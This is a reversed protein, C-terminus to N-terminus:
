VHLKSAIDACCVARRFSNLIWFVLPLGHLFCGLHEDPCHTLMQPTWDADLHPPTFHQQALYVEWRIADSRPPAQSGPPKLHGRLTEGSGALSKHEQWTSSQFISLFSLPAFYLFIFSIHIWTKISLGLSPVLPITKEEQHTFYKM